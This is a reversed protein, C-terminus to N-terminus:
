GEQCSEELRARQRTVRGTKKMEARFRARNRGQIYTRFRNM